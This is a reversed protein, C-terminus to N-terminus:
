VRSHASATSTECQLHLRRRGICHLFSSHHVWRPAAPLAEDSYSLDERRGVGAQSYSSSSASPLVKRAAGAATYLRGAPSLPAPPSSQVPRTALRPVCM